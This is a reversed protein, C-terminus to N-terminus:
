LSSLCTDVNTAHATLLEMMDKKSSDGNISRQFASNGEETAFDRHDNDVRLGAPSIYASEARRHM